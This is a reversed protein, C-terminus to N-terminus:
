VEEIVFDVKRSSIRDVKEPRVFVKNGSTLKWPRYRYLLTCYGCHLLSLNSNVGSATM